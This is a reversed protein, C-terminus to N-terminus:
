NLRPSLSCHNKTWWEECYFLLCEYDLLSHLLDQVDMSQSSNYNITITLFHWYIWDDLGSGTIILWPVRSVHCSTDSNTPNSPNSQIIQKFLASFTVSGCWPVFVPVFSPM